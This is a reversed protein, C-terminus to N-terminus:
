PNVLGSLHSNGEQIDPIRSKLFSLRERMRLLLTPSELDSIGDLLDEIMQIERLIQATEVVRRAADLGGRPAKDCAELFLAWEFLQSVALALMGIAKRPDEDQSSM